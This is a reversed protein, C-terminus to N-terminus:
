SQIFNLSLIWTSVTVLKNSYFLVRQTSGAIEVDSADAVLLLSLSISLPLSETVNYSAYNQIKVKM